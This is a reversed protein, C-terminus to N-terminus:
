GTVTIKGKNYFFQKLDEKSYYKIIKKKLRFLKRNVNHKILTLCAFLFLECNKECSRQIQFRFFAMQNAIKNKKIKINFVSESLGTCQFVLPKTKLKGM